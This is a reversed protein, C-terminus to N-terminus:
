LAFRAQAVRLTLQNTKIPPTISLSPEMPLFCYATLRAIVKVLFGKILINRTYELIWFFINLIIM